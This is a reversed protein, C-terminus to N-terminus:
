QYQYVRSKIHYYREFYPLKDHMWFIFPCDRDRIRLEVFGVTFGAVTLIPVEERASPPQPNYTQLTLIISVGDLIWHGFFVPGVFSHIFDLSFGFDLTWLSVLSSLDKFFGVLDLVDQFVLM